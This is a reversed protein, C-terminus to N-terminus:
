MQAPISVRLEERNREGVIYKERGREEEGREQKSATRVRGEERGEGVKHKERPNLTVKTEPGCVLKVRISERGKM